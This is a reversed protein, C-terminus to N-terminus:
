VAAASLRLGGDDDDRASRGARRRQELEGALQGLTREGPLPARQARPAREDERTRHAWKLPVGEGRAGTAYELRLQDGSGGLAASDSLFGAFGAQPRHVQHNFHSRAAPSLGGFAAVGPSVGLQQEARLLLLEREGNYKADLGASASFSRSLRQSQSHWAAPSAPVAAASGASGAAAAARKPRRASATLKALYESSGSDPDLNMLALHARREPTPM